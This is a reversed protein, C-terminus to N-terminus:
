DDLVQLREIPLSIWLSAGPQVQFHPAVQVRLGGPDIIVEAHDGRYFTERVVARVGNDTPPEGTIEICEPYIALAGSAWRPARGVTLDGLATSVRMDDIKQAPIVNAAFFDAVFRTTPHDYVDRTPGEQEIRGKNMIVVRDSVTMAEDQDHTVLLFTKGLSRQLRRLEVQVEARLKADLASMPEDLLLLEPHNVLARALAVRQKQGGSIQHPYRRALDELKLMALGAQVRQNVKAEDFARARLGFAINEYVSLHPFLAYTQFVTNVQRRNAPLDNVRQGALIISGHDANDLGAIIRLLTTKGCGSPGLLTVFEGQRVRFCVNDLVAVSDFAKRVDDVILSFEHTEAAGPDSIFAPNHRM